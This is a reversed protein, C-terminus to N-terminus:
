LDKLDEKAEMFKEYMRHVNNALECVIYSQTVHNNSYVDIDLAELIDWSANTCEKAILGPILNKTKKNAVIIIMHRIGVEQHKMVCAYSLDHPDANTLSLGNFMDELHFKAVTMNEAIVVDYSTCFLPLTIAEHYTSAGKMLNDENM